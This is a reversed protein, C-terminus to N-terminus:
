EWGGDIGLVQGTVSLPMSLLLAAAKGVEGPTILRGLPIEETLAELEEDSFRANMRTDVLGPALANVAIGSPALEKALAKTLGELGAKATSYAAEMAAGRKGWVSSINLIKGSHSSLMLPIAARCTLFAANLDTDLVRRWEEPTMDQLLGYHSIGACNVLVDLRPLLAFVADIFAPDSIDGRVTYTRHQPMLAFGEALRDLAAGGRNGLLVFDGPTVAGEGLARSIAGGIEGSAGTILIVPHIGPIQKLDTLM